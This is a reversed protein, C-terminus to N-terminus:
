LRNVQQILRVLKQGDILEIPKDQAFYDAESTFVNTTIFIGKGKATHDVLVGYFERIDKVDVKSTIYKKCQIY